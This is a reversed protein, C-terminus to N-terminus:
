EFKVKMQPGESSLLDSTIQPRDEDLTTYPERRRGDRGLNLPYQSYFTTSLAQRTEPELTAVLQLLIESSTSVTAINIDESM